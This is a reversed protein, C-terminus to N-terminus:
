DEDYDEYKEEKMMYGVGWVMYIFFIFFGEDVKKRLYCIYVDIVNMEGEYEYGWVNIFIGERMVIKNKNMFLYVVLDYEKLILMIFENNRLVERIEFNIILDSIMLFEVEVEKMGLVEVFLCYCICFCVWVLLEEIEFM